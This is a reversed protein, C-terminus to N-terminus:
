TESHRYHTIITYTIPPYDTHRYWFVSCQTMFIYDQICLCYERQFQYLGHPIM